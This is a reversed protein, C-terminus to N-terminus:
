FDGEDRQGVRWRCSRREWPDGDGDSDCDSNSNAVMTATMTAIM